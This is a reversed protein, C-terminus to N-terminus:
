FWRQMRNVEPQIGYGHSSSTGMVVPYITLLARCNSNTASVEAVEGNFILGSRAFNIFISSPQIGLPFRFNGACQPRIRDETLAEPLFM